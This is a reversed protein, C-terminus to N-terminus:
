SRASSDTLWSNWVRLDSVNVRDIAVNVSTVRVGALRELALSVDARRTRGAEVVVLTSDALAAVVVSESREVLPPSIVIVLDFRARLDAFLQATAPTSLLQASSPRTTGAPIWLLDDTGHDGSQIVADLPAASGLVDVVGLPQKAGPRSAKEPRQSEQRLDTDVVVVRVGVETFARGLQRAVKAADAAASVGVVAVVGTGRGGFQLNARLSRFSELRLDSTPGRRFRTPSTPVSTITAIVPSRPLDRPTRVRTNLADAVVLFGVGLLLGVLSGIVINNGPRPTLANEPVEATQVITLQIPTTGGPSDLLPAQTSLAGAVANAQDAVVVPDRGTATIDILASQERAVASIAQRLDRINTGDRLQTVARDLVTETTALGAYTTVRQVTFVSGQQLEGASASGPLGVYLTAQTYYVPTATLTLIVAASAGLAIFSVVLWWRHALLRVYDHLIM